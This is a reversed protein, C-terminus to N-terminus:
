QQKWNGINDRNAGKNAAMAPDIMKDPGASWIMVKGNFEFLDTNPNNRDPHNLGDHGVAGSQQSVARTRYFADRTREDLNLDVSIIYPNGWPDRYVLDPGVGGSNTDTNISANLYGKKQPNKLHGVNVTPVSTNPFFEKDMLIAVVESNNAQYAFPAGSAPAVIAITGTPTRLPPLGATGFTFDEPAPRANSAVYLANSSVPMRSYDSEYSTVATAIQAIQMKARTTKGKKVAGQVAPFIMAALIGIIAIVVLLEILTFAARKLPGGCPHNLNSQNM